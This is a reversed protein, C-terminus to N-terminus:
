ANNKSVDLIPEVSMYVLDHLVRDEMLSDSPFVYDRGSKNEPYPGNTMYESSWSM